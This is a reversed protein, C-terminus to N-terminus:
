RAGPLHFVRRLFGLHIADQTVVGLTSGQADEWMHAWGVFVLMCLRVYVSYFSCVSVSPSGLIYTIQRHGKLSLISNVSEMRNM